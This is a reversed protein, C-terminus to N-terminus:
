KVHVCANVYPYAFVRLTSSLFLSFGELDSSVVTCWHHKKTKQVKKEWFFPINSCYFM